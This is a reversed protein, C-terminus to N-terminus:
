PEVQIKVGPNQAEFGAILKKLVKERGSQGAPDLFSWIRITTGALATQTLLVLTAILGVRVLWNLKRFM